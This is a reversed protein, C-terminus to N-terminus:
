PMGGVARRAEEADDFPLVRGKVIQGTEHGKGALILVDGAALESVALGIAQRRDGLERAEPCGALIAARIATPDESRPNDDTVIVRDAGLAAIRGMQPRKGPDRDGGCGFVVVLRGSVHPRLAALVNQLADPTHAYDVYVAAGNTTMAVQQLRGPVGELHALAAVAAAVPAGTAVALGLACAANAAQFAGALPLHLQYPQGEVILDLEQGHASPVAGAIRIDAGASGYTLVRVGRQRALAALEAAQPTDANIVAVGAPRLLEAFLRRKARWYADMGGHYDLHDRTLNTFAAAAIDVGDLRHQDLGHSSAEFAAHTVGDDALEALLRHLSVPDPTTLSGKGVRDPAILGVTGLSAAPHGLRNWIQRTFNAVSTKGNTGTVAAMVAPQRGFFRAAMLALRRRPNEDTILVAQDAPLSSGPPALVAVAGKALAEAIYSRGDSKQGPLAAFLDGPRVARSDASLGGIDPDAGCPTRAALLDSLRPLPSGGM